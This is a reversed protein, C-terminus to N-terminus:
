LTNAQRRYKKIRDRESIKFYLVRRNIYWLGCKAPLNIPGNSVWFQNSYSTAKVSENLTNMSMETASIIIIIMVSFTDFENQMYSISCNMCNGYEWFNDINIFTKASLVFNHSSHSNTFLRSAGIM